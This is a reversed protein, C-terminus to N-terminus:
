KTGGNEFYAAWAARREDRTMGAARMARALAIKRGITKVFQDRPNCCAVGMIREELECEGVHLRCTTLRGPGPQSYGFHATYGGFKM